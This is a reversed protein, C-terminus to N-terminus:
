LFVRGKVDTVDREGLVEGVERAVGRCVRRM